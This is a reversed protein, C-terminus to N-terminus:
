TRDHVIDYKRVLDAQKGNSGEAAKKIIKKREEAPYDFFNKSKPTTKKLIKM